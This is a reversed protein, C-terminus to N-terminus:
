RRGGQPVKPYVRDHCGQRPERSMRQHAERYRRPARAEAESRFSDAPKPEERWRHCRARDEVDQAYRVGRHPQRVGRRAAHARHPRRPRHGHYDRRARALGLPVPARVDPDDQERRVLPDPRERVQARRYRDRAPEARQRAGHAGDDGGTHAPRRGQGEQAEVCGADQDSVRGARESCRQQPAAQAGDRTTRIACVACIASRRSERRSAPAKRKAPQARSQPNAREEARNRKKEGSDRKKRLLVCNKKTKTSGTQARDVSYDRGDNRYFAVSPGNYIYRPGM